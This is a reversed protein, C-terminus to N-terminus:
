NNNTKKIKDRITPTNHIESHYKRNGPDEAVEVKRGNPCFSSYEANVAKLMSGIFCFPLCSPVSDVGLFLSFSM